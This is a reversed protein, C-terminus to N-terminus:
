RSESIRTAIFWQNGFPDTVGAYRDGYPQDKPEGQLSTGGAEIVRKYVADVDPVYVHLALPKPQYEGRAESMEMISDGIRIKAHVITGDPSRHCEFEEADFSQKLFDIFRDTGRVHLSPTVTRLGEPVHTPGQHTAIYWDNGSPDRVGAERDGYPQDVPAEISVGGTQIARRYVADVDEVYMHLMVPNREEPPEGVEVMSDGVMIEAHMVRGDPAAYRSVEEAGFAEKLFDILKAGDRPLLYPTLTHFGKPIWHVLTTVNAKEKLDAKLNERFEESPVDRLDMAVQLLERVEESAPTSSAHSLMADVAQDLREILDREDMSKM